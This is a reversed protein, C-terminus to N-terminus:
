VIHRLVRRAVDLTVGYVFHASLSAAHEAPTTAKAPKSLGLAPVAIEDGFLWLATAYPIGLGTGVVPLVEALGGYLAGMAAGYGYHVAAGASAKEEPKLDRGAVTQIAKQAVQVTANDDPNPSESGKGTGAAPPAAEQKRAAVPEASITQFQNMAWAAVAGAIAGAVVGNATREVGDGVASLGHGVASAGTKVAGATAAAGDQVADWSDSVAGKVRAQAEVAADKLDGARDGASTAADAVASKIQDWASKKISLFSM